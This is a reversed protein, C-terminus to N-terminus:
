SVITYQDKTLKAMTEFYVPPNKIKVGTLKTCGSFMGSYSTCSKMDIIGKITTLARCYEFMYSMDNVNSTDWKSIDLTTLANCHWFMYSMDTVKGTNWKSADLNTLSKCGNFMYSMNTINSTDWGTTDISTLKRCGYLM